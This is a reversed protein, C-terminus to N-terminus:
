TIETALSDDLGIYPSPIQDFVKLCTMNEFGTNCYSVSSFALNQLFNVQTHYASDCRRPVAPGAPHCLHKQQM